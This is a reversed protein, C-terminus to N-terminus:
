GPPISPQASRPIIAQYLGSRSDFGRGSSWLESARVRICGLCRSVWSVLVIFVFHFHRSHFSNLAFTVSSSPSIFFTLFITGFFAQHRSFSAIQLKLVSTTSPRSMTVSSFNRHKILTSCHVYNVFNYRYAPQTSILIKHIQNLASM